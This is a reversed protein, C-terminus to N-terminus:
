NINYSPLVYLDYLDNDDVILAPIFEVYANVREDWERREFLSLIYHM